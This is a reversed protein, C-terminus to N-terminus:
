VLLTKQNDTFNLFVRGSLPRNFSLEVPPQRTLKRVSKNSNAEQRANKKKEKKKQDAKEKNEVTYHQM